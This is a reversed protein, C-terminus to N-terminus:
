VRCARSIIMMKVGLWCAECCGSLIHASALYGSLFALIDACSTRKGPCLVKDM